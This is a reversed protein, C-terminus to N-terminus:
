LYGERFFPIIGDDVKRQLEEKAAEIIEEDDINSILWELYDSSIFRLETEKYKGFPMKM